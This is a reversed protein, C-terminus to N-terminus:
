EAQLGDEGAVVGTTQDTCSRRGGPTRSSSRRNRDDSEESVGAGGLSLRQRAEEQAHMQQAKYLDPVIQRPPQRFANGSPTHYYFEGKADECVVWVGLTFKQNPLEQSDQQARM